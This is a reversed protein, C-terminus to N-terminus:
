NLRSRIIPDEYSILKNLYEAKPLAKYLFRDLIWKRSPENKTDQILSDTMALLSQQETIREANLLVSTLKDFKFNKKKVFNAIAFPSYKYSSINKEKINDKITAWLVRLLSNWCISKLKLYKKQTSDTEKILILKNQLTFSIISQPNSVVEKLLDKVCLLAQMQTTGEYIPLVVSERLWFEAKFEKSYGYGGHIQFAAKAHKVATEATWFKLLPTNKRVKRNILAIKKTLEKVEKSDQPNKLRKELLDIQSIQALTKYCLSRSAKLEVEMDLLKEAIIEHKAIVKGWSKRTNAYQKALRFTAEMSGVAQLSVGLRMGNMLELMHKFGHNEKGLLFGISGDYALEATPSGNLGLKDEFKLLKINEKGNYIKPCLFLSLNKLGKLGKETKALVLSLMSQGNSIFRKTGYLKFDGSKQKIAYTKLNGLDSGVESETLAMNGSIEGSAIKPIWKQKLENSGFKEIIRAITSYWSSSITTTPCARHIIEASAGSLFIPLEMGGYITSIESGFFGLNKLLDMNLELNKSLKVEGNILKSGEKDILSSRKSIDASVKGISDFMEIICSLWDDETKVGLTTKQEENLFPYLYKIDLTNKVHFLIDPNDTFFNTAM